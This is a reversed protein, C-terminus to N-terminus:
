PVGFAILDILRHNLARPSYGNEPLSQWLTIFEESDESFPAHGIAHHYFLLTVQRKFPDSQAAQDALDLLDVVPEAMLASAPEMGAEWLNRQAPRTPNYVSPVGELVGNYYAFPYAIPDLTSHCPTCPAETVDSQDYDMLPDASGWLGEQKAVDFGLYIRYFHAASVRPLVAGGERNTAHFWTTTLLGARHQPDLPQGGDRYACHTKSGEESARCVQDPDCANSDAPDCLGLAEPIVGEIKVLAGDLERVHYKALLLDRLDGDGSLVYRFLRDDWKWSTGSDIARIAVDGMRSVAEDRWYASNLCEDLKSHLAAYPDDALAFSQNEEYSPSRGCYIVSVRRFAFGHDREGVTYDPNPEGYSPTPAKPKNEPDGPMAGLLIEELNTVGDGDSDLIEIAKLADPIAQEFPLPELLRSTQALIEFGFANWSVAEPTSGTHCLACPALTGACLASEPYVGCFVAPGELRAQACPSMWLVGAVTMVFLCAMKQPLRCRKMRNPTERSTM